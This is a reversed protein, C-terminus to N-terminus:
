VASVEEANLDTIWIMRSTLPPHILRKRCIFPADRNKMKM